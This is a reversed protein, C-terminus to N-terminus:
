YFTDVVSVVVPDSQFLVVPDMQPKRQTKRVEMVVMALYEAAEARKVGALEM